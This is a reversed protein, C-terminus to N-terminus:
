WGTYEDGTSGIEDGKPGYDAYLDSLTFGRETTVEVAEMLPAAYQEKFKKM